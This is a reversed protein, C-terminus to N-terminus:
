ASQGLRRKSRGTLLAQQGASLTTWDLEERHVMGVADVARVINTPKLEVGLIKHARKKM